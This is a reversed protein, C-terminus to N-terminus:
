GTNLIVAGADTAWRHLRRGRLNHKAKFHDDWREHHANPDGFVCAGTPLQSPDFPDAVLSAEQPPVYLNLIRVPEDRHPYVTLDQVETVQDADGKARPAGKTPSWWLGEMLLALLGGRATDSPSDLRAADYGPFRPTELKMGKRTKTLWTEQLLLVHPQHERLIAKVGEVNASISRCNWQIIRLHRKPVRRRAEEHKKQVAATAAKKHKAAASPDLGAREEKEKRMREGNEKKRQQDVTSSWRGRTSSIEGQLPTFTARKQDLLRQAESATGRAQEAGAFRVNSGCACEVVVPAAPPLVQALMLAYAAGLASIGRTAIRLTRLRVTKKGVRHGKRDDKAVELLRAETANVGPLLRKIVDCGPEVPITAATDPRGQRIPAWEKLKPFLAKWVSPEARVRVAAEVNPGETGMARELEQRFQNKTYENCYDLRKATAGPRARSQPKRATAKKKAKKAAAKKPPGPHKAEGVRVALLGCRRRLLAPAAAAGVAAGDGNGPARRKKKDAPEDDGAEARKTGKFALLFTQLFTTRRNQPTIECGHARALKELDGLPLKRITEPSPVEPAPAQARPPTRPPPTRAGAAKVAAAGAPAASAALNEAQERLQRQANAAATAADLQLQKEALAKEAKRKEDALQQQLQATESRPESGIVIPRSAGGLPPATKPAAPKEPQKAERKGIALLRARLTDADTIEADQAQSGPECFALAHRCQELTLTAIPLGGFTPVPAGKPVAPADGDGSAEADEVSAWHWEHYHGLTLKRRAQVDPDIPPFTRPADWSPLSSWVRIVASYVCGAALLTLHDGWEKGEVRKVYADFDQASGVFYVFAGPVEGRERTPKVNVTQNEVVKVANSKADFICSPDSSDTIM